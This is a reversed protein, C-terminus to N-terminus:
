GGHMHDTLRCKSDVDVAMAESVATGNSWHLQLCTVAQKNKSTVENTGRLHHAAFFIQYVALFTNFMSAGNKTSPMEAALVSLQPVPFM